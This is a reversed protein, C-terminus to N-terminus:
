GQEPWGFQEIILQHIRMIAKNVRNVGMGEVSLMEIGRDRFKWAADELQELTHGKPPRVVKNGYNIPPRPCILLEASMSVLSIPTQTAETLRHRHKGPLAQSAFVSCATAGWQLHKRGESRLPPVTSPTM